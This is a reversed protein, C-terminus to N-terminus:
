LARPPPPTDRDQFPDVIVESNKNVYAKSHSPVPRAPLHGLTQFLFVLALCM